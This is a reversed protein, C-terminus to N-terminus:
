IGFRTRNKLPSRRQAKHASQDRPQCPHLPEPPESARSALGNLTDSCRNNLMTGGKLLRVFISIYLTKSFGRLFIQMNIVVIESYTLM